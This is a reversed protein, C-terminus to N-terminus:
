IGVIRGWAPWVCLRILIWTILPIVAAGGILVRASMGAPMRVILRAQMVFYAHILRVARCMLGPVRSVHESTPLITVTPSPSDRLLGRCILGVLMLFGTMGVPILWAVGVAWVMLILRVIGLAVIRVLLVRWVM